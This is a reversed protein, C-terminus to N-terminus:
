FKPLDMLVVAKIGVGPHNRKVTAKADEESTAIVLETILEGDKAFIVKYTHM